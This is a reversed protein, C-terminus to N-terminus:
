SKLLMIFEVVRFKSANNYPEVTAYLDSSNDGTPEWTVTEGDPRVGGELPIDPLSRRTNNPAILRNEYRIEYCRQWM